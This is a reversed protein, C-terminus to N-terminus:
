PVILTLSQPELTIVMPLDPGPDGDSQSRIVSASAVPEIRVNATRFRQVDRGPIKLGLKLRIAHWFVHWRSTGTFARVDLLGDDM